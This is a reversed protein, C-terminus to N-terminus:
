FKVPNAPKLFPWAKKHGQLARHLRILGNHEEGTLVKLEIPNQGDKRCYNPCQFEKM